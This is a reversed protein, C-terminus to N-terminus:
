SYQATSVIHGEVYSLKILRQGTLPLIFFLVSAACQNPWQTDM